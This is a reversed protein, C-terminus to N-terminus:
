VSLTVNSSTTRITKGADPVIDGTPSVISSNAPTTADTTVVLGDSRFRSLVAQLDAVLLPANVPISNVFEIVSGVIAASLTVTDVNGQFVLKLVIDVIQPVSTSVIVAIGGARFEGLSNSVTNALARSAVGSSDAIYLLVVRAPTNGTTIVEVAQASVVGPVAKAGFEIAALTGRRATNWFDRIRSKFTEDDERDEGGATPLDNNVVITQDFVPAANAGIRVIQNAGVQFSKGSQVAQVDASVVLDSAGFSAATTTLYEIGDNTAVKTGVPVTGAGVVASNRSFTVTGVAPSAGKRALQYRDWAYRDLDEGEAGDLLLRNISYALQKVVEFAVVSTSGVFVNVDSGQIDVQAPDIKDARQLV